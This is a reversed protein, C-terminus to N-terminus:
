RREENLPLGIYVPPPEDDRRQLEVVATGTIHMTLLLDTYSVGGADREYERHDQEFEVGIVGHAGLEHAQRTLRTMTQSRTEYVGRTFDVLEQNQRSTLLGRAGRQQAWGTMVYGVTTATVLGAPWFGHEFLAAFQQGTLNSLVPDPGLDYRDSVVATGVAVFELLGRAWDFQGQQLQVGVVASAGVGRAEEVLRGLALRRAETWAETQTELELTQGQAYSYGFGGRGPMAQWGINYFCSGMVQSLPRFGARKVLLFENTTLDSTFFRGGQARVQDLRARAAAPIGGAELAEVDSAAADATGREEAM